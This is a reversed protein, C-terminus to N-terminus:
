ALKELAKTLAKMETRLRRLEKEILSRKRDDPISASQIMELLPKAEVKQADPKGNSDRICAAALQALASTTIDRRLRPEKLRRGLETFVDDSLGALSTVKEGNDTAV